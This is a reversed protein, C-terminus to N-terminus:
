LQRKCPRPHNDLAPKTQLREGQMQKLRLAVASAPVFGLPHFIKERYANDALFSGSCREAFFIKVRGKVIVRTRAISFNHPCHVALM